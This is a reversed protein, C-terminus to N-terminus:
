ILSNWIDETLEAEKRSILEADDPIPNVNYFHPNDDNTIDESITGSLEAIADNWMPSGKKLYFVVGNDSAQYIVDNKKDLYYKVFVDKFLGTIEWYAKECQPIDQLDYLADLIGDYYWAQKEKPANFRTWLEDGMIAYDYAISRINSLKDAMILMKVRVDATALETITHLKREDWSKSKDESNSAVLEAVDDGFIERIEDLTTDTDEVTDHLLGAIMLNTDARMSYLIQLVELPHVIYPIATAKRFQGSHKQTAFEIATNLRHKHVMQEQIWELMMEDAKEGTIAENWVKWSYERPIKEWNIIEKSFKYAVDSDDMLVFLEDNKSLYIEYANLLDNKTIM